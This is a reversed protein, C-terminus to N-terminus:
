HPTYENSTERRFLRELAQKPIVIGLRELAWVDEPHLEITDPGLQVGENIYQQLAKKSGLRKQERKWSDLALQKALPESVFKALSVTFIESANEKPTILQCHNEVLSVLATENSAGTARDERAVIYNMLYYSKGEYRTSAALALEKIDKPLCSFISKPISSDLKSSGQAQIQLTDAGLPELQNSHEQMIAADQNLSSAIDTPPSEAAQSCAAFAISILVFSCLFPLLTKKM